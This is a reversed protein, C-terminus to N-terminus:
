DAKLQSAEARHREADAAEGLKDEAGALLSLSEALLGRYCRHQDTLPALLDRAKLSDAKAAVPANLMLQRRGSLILSRALLSSVPLVEASCDHTMTCCRVAASVAEDTLSDDVSSMAAARRYSLLCRWLAAGEDSREEMQEILRIGRGIQDLAADIRGLRVDEVTRRDILYLQYSDDDVERMVEVGASFRVSAHGRLICLRTGDLAPDAAFVIASQHAPKTEKLRPPPSVAEALVRSARQLDGMLDRRGEGEVLERYRAVAESLCKRAEMPQNRRTFSSGHHFLAEALYERPDDRDDKVSEIKGSQEQLLDSEDTAMFVPVQRGEVPAGKEVRILLLQRNTTLATYVSDEAKYPLPYSAGDDLVIFIERSTARCSVCRVTAPPLLDHILCLRNRSNLLVSTNGLVHAHNKAQSSFDRLFSDLDRPFLETGFWLTEEAEAFQPPSSETYTEVALPTTLDGHAQNVKTAAERQRLILVARRHCDDAEEDCGLDDLLQGLNSLAQAHGTALDELGSRAVLSRYFEASQRLCGEREEANLDNISRRIDARLACSATIDKALDARGHKEVLKKRLSLAEQVCAEAEALRECKKLIAAHNFLALALSDSFDDRGVEEVLCRLRDLIAQSVEWAFNTSLMVLADDGELKVLDVDFGEVPRKEHMRIVLLRDAEMLVAHMEDPARWDITRESGDAFLFKLRRQDIDYGVWHLWVSMPKDHVICLKGRANAILGVNGGLGIAGAPPSDDGWYESARDVDDYEPKRSQGPSPEAVGFVSVRGKPFNVVWRGRAGPICLSAALHYAAIMRVSEADFDWLRLADASWSLVRGDAQVAAGAPAITHGLLVAAPRGDAEWVRLTKDAAWSLLRGDPLALAGKIRQTHGTLEAIPLGDATWLRLTADTSWSLLRGADLVLAGAVRRTHGALVAIPLGDASWLRLATDTSWSVLRGNPLALAGSVECGDGSMDALPLGECTWLRLSDACWSLIRGAPTELAGRIRSTHGVLARVPRGDAEWLRLSREDRSLIRGNSLVLADQVAAGHGAIMAQQAGGQDWMRLTADNSWSLIRGGDLALAGNVSAAHGSCEGIPRGEADWLRLTAEGAWSLLRGDSLRVIGTVNTAHGARGCSSLANIEWVRVPDDRSWITLHGPPWEVVGAGLDMAIGMEGLAAGDETWLRLTNDDSWSLLRGDALELAGEVPGTHGKLVDLPRGDGDWLRLTEDASWSLLRGNTLRRVGKVAGAHRGEGEVPVGEGDWLLLAGNETWLAIRCDELAVAAVISKFPDSSMTVQNRDALWLCAQAASWSFIRGGPLVVAAKVRDTHGTLPWPGGGDADWLCLNGDASWSLLHGDPLVAAGAVHLTHFILVHLPQLNETWLRLTTDDSWSLVRRDPLQLAGRIPATHGIAIGAPRGDPQWRRLNHDVSWSLLTGDLLRLAGIVPATHGGLIFASDSEGDGASGNRLVPYNVMGRALYREAAENLPSGAPEELAAQLLIRSAPWGDSCRLLLHLQKRFFRRVQRQPADLGDRAAEEVLAWDRALDLVAGPGQNGLCRLRAMLVDFDSVLAAAAAVQGAELLHRVGARYLYRAEAAKGSSLAGSCLMRELVDRRTGALDVTHRLHDRLSEHYIRYGSAGEPTFGRTVMGGLRVVSRHVKNRRVDPDRDLSLLRGLLGALMDESLAEHAQALCCLVFTALVHDDGVACRRVLDEYYATLSPPLGEADRGDLFRLRNSLIDGVVYDVYLPLGDAKRAVVDVFGNVLRGGDSGEHDAALLKRALPGVKELLKARIDDVTMGALGGPLPEVAGLRHMTDPLAGDPRGSYLWHGGAALLASLDVSIFEPEVVAIEDLGDVAILVRMRQEAAPLLRAVARRDDLGSAEAAAPTGAAAEALRERLYVLFTSTRCDEHGARFRYPLVLLPEESGEMTRENAEAVLDVMLRAMLMSKGIGSPGYLWMLRAPDPATTATWLLQLEDERGLFREADRRLDREMGSTRSHRDVVPASAFLREFHALHYSEGQGFAADEAGLAIYELAIEGRRLFIQVVDSGETSLGVRPTGRLVFPALPLLRDALWVAAAGAHDGIDDGAIDVPVATAGACGVIRLVSGDEARALLTLSGLQDLMPLLDDIRDQWRNCLDAALRDGISGHALVNRLRLLSEMETDTGRGMLECLRRTIPELMAAFARSREDDAELTSVVDLAMARWHSFTPTRIHGFVHPLQEKPLAGKHARRVDALGIITVLRLAMEALECAAWLRLRSHQENIYADAVHALPTIWSDFRRTQDRCFADRLAALIERREVRKLEFHDELEDESIGHLRSGIWGLRVFEAAVSALGWRSLFEALGAETSLDM